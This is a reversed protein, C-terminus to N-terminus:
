IIGNKRRKKSTDVALFKENCDESCKEQNEQAIATFKYKKPKYAAQFKVNENSKNGLLTGFENRIVFNSM